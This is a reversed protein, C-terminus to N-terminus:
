FRRWHRLISLIEFFFLEKEQFPQSDETDEVRILQPLETIACTFGVAMKSYHLDLLLDPIFFLLTSPPIKIFPPVPWLNSISLTIAVSFSSYSLYHSLLGPWLTLMHLTCLARTESGVSLATCGTVQALIYYGHYM